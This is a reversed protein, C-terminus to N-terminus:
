SVKTVVGSNLSGPEPAITPPEADNSNGPAFPSEPPVPGTAPTGYGALAARVIRARDLSLDVARRVRADDFPARHANFVLGTTFLVPYDVVRLSPDRAALRAMTPAIGAVDLDGSALGAFKTTPEDVVAVVVGRLWPPGGLSTPFADNRVFVWREGARREVFRFPGNGVPNLNFAARKLNARPVGSLLHAPLLPLECFVLPFTPQPERFVVAATTDDRALVTDVM